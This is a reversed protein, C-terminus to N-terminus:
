KTNIKFSAIQITNDETEIKPKKIDLFNIAKKFVNKLKEKNINASGILIGDNKGEDELDMVRYGATKILPEDTALSNNKALAINNIKEDQKKHVEIPVTVFLEEKKNQLRSIDIPTPLNNRNGNDVTAVTIIEASGVKYSHNPQQDDAFKNVSKNEQITAQMTNLAVADKVNEAKTEGALLDTVPAGTNNNTERTTALGNGVELNGPVPVVMWLTAVLAIFAAAVGMRMWMVPVIRREKETRYLSSKDPFSVAELPIRTKHLLLFEEQLAPNKLVFKEVEAKETSNLEDDVSLLFYTQYNSTNIKNSPQKHLLDKNEFYLPEPSLQVDRLMDLEAQLDPHQAVFDEVANRQEASLENDLYLMFFEEYNHRNINAM